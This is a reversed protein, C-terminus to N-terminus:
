LRVKKCEGMWIKYDRFAVRRVYQYFEEKADDSLVDDSLIKTKNSEVFYERFLWVLEAAFQDHTFCMESSYSNVRALVLPKARSHWKDAIARPFGCDVMVKRTSEFLSKAAEQVMELLNMEEVNVPKQAEFELTSTVKRVAEILVSEHRQSTLEVRNDPRPDPQRFHLLPPANSIDHVHKPLWLKIDTWAALRIYQWLLDKGAADLGPVEKDYLWKLFLERVTWACACHHPSPRDKVEGDEEGRTQVRTGDGCSAENISADVDAYM